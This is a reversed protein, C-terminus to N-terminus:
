YNRLPKRYLKQVLVFGGEHVTVNNVAPLAGGDPDDVFSLSLRVDVENMGGRDGVFFNQGPYVVDKDNVLLLKQGYNQVNLYVCGDGGTLELHHPDSEDIQFDHWVLKGPAMRYLVALIKSVLELM